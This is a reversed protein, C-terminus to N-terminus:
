NDEDYTADRSFWLALTDKAMLQIPDTALRFPHALEKCEQLSLFEHVILRRRSGEEAAEPESM